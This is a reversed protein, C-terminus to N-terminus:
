LPRGDILKLRDPRRLKRIAHAEIQAVRGKSVGEEQGIEECTMQDHGFVGFRKCLVRRERESFENILNELNVVAETRRFTIEPTEDSVPQAAILGTIEAVSLEIEVKNSLLAQEFHQEPLIDALECKFFALLRECTAGLTGNKLFAPKKFAGLKGLETQSIGSLRSLEAITSIGRQGMMRLLRANRIRLEVRYDPTDSAAASGCRSVQDATM